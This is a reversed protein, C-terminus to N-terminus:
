ETIFHHFRLFKILQNQGKDFHNSESQQHLESFHIPVFAIRIIEREGLLLAEDSKLPRQQWGFEAVQVWMKDDTMLRICLICGMAFFKLLQNLEIQLEHRAKFYDLHFQIFNTSCVANKLLDYDM